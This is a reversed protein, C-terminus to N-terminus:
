EYYLVIRGTRMNTTGDSTLKPVMLGQVWGIRGSRVTRLDNIGKLLAVTRGNRDQIEAYDTPDQYDIYEMQVHPMMGLFLPVDQTVAIVWPNSALQNGTPGPM